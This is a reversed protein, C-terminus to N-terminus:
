NLGEFNELLKKSAWFLMRDKHFGNQMTESICNTAASGTINLFYLNENKMNNLGSFDLSHWFNGQTSSQPTGHIIFNSWRDLIIESMTRDTGSKIEPFLSPSNFIYLLEDCHSTGWNFPITENTAAWLTEYSNEGQYGFNYVWIPSHGLATHLMVSQYSAYNVTRDGWLNIFGQINEPDQINVFEQGGMYFKQTQKHLELQNNRDSGVSIDYFLEKLMLETFNSNLANRTASNRVLPSAKLDGENQAVGVIWPINSFERAQIYDIPMKTLFPEPNRKTKKEIVLSYPMVPDVGFYKFAEGSEVLTKADVKRLCSMILKSNNKNCGSIQAQSDFVQKHAENLPTAWLALAAGSESIAQQFLGAESASPGSM